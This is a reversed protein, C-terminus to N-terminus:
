LGVSSDYDEPWWARLDRTQGENQSHKPAWTRFCAGSRHEGFGRRFGPKGPAVGSDRATASIPEGAEPRKPSRCAGTSLIRHFRETGERHRGHARQISRHTRKAM